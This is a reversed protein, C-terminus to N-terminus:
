SRKIIVIGKGDYFDNNSATELDYVSIDLTDDIGELEDEFDTSKYFVMAAWPLRAIYKYLQDAKFAHKSILLFSEDIHIREISEGLTDVNKLELRRKMQRVARVKKSIIDNLIFQKGPSAVALPLGPLGGGTGADVITQAEKFVEFHALLLSHRIHETVTERSVSRSLLNIRENWWFLQEIYKEIKDRNEKLLQDAKGFAESFLAHHSISHKM